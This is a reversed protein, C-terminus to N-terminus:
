DLPDCESIFVLIHGETKALESFGQILFTFTSNTCFVALFHVPLHSARRHLRNTTKSALNYNKKVRSVFWRSNLRLVFCTHLRSDPAPSFDSESLLFTNEVEEDITKIM